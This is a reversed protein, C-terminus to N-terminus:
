DKGNQLNRLTNIKGSPLGVSFGSVNSFSASILNPLSATNLTLTKVRLKKVSSAMCLCFQVENSGRITIVYGCILPLENKSACIIFAKAGFDPFYFCANGWNFASCCKNRIVM